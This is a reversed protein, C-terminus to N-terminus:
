ITRWVRLHRSSAGKSTTEQLFNCIQIAVNQYSDFRPEIQHVTIFNGLLAKPFKNKRLSPIWSDLFGLISNIWCILPFNKESMLVCKLDIGVMVPPLIQGSSRKRELKLHKERGRQNLHVAFFLCFSSGASYRKTLLFYAFTISILPM